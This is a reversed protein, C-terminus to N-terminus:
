SALPHPSPLPPSVISTSHPLVPPPPPQHCFSLHSRHTSPLHSYSPLSFNCAALLSALWSWSHDLSGSAPIPSVFLGSTTAALCLGCRARTIRAHQRHGRAGSAQRGVTDPHWLPTRPPAGGAESPPRSPLARPRPTTGDAEARHDGRATRNRPAWAAPECGSASARAATPRPEAAKLKV